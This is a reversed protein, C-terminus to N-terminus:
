FDLRFAYSGKVQTMPLQYGFRASTTSQHANTANFADSLWILDNNFKHLLNTEARLNNSLQHIGSLFWDVYSGQSLSGGFLTGLAQDVSTQWSADGLNIIYFIYGTYHDKKFNNAYVQTGLEDTFRDTNGWQNNQKLTNYDTLEPRTGNWYSQAIRFHSLFNAEIWAADGDRRSTAPNSVGGINYLIEPNLQTRLEEFNTYITLHNAAADSIYFLQLADQVTFSNSVDGATVAGTKQSIGNIFLELNGASTEETVILARTSPYYVQTLDTSQNADFTYTGTAFDIKAGGSLFTKDGTIDKNYVGFSDNGGTPATGSVVTVTGASATYLTGSILDTLNAASNAFIDSIFVFSKFKAWDGSTVLANILINLYYKEKDTITGSNAVILDIATQTDSSITMDNLGDIFTLIETDNADVFTNKATNNVSAWGDGLVDDLFTIIEIDNTDVFTNKAASSADGWVSGLSVEGGTLKTLVLDVDQPQVIDLYIEAM